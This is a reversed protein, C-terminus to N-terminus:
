RYGGARDKIAQSIWMWQYRATLSLWGVDMHKRASTGVTGRLKVLKAGQRRAARAYLHDEGYPADERFGGISEHLSRPVCFAQDGFPAGFMRSRMSAGISNVKHRLKGDYYDIGFYLLAAPHKEIGRSLERVIGEPMRTDAHVFWLWDGQAAEVGCNLAAARGPRDVNVVKIRDNALQLDEQGAVILEFQEPLTALERECRELFEEAPALPVIVSIQTQESLHSDVGFGLVM